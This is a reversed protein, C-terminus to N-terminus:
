QKVLKLVKNQAGGSITLLYTGHQLGESPINFHFRDGDPVLTKNLVVKGDMDVLRIVLQKEQTTGDLTWGNYTPNPYVVSGSEATLEDMGTTAPNVIFQGMMGNDEHSNIHCHYMYPMMPDSFDAYKMVLQATGGMPPVTVVDKRGQMYAPPAAGNISLIYFHNGHIHWPHPMMSQNTLSWIMVSDQKTYFNIVNMDYQVGNITFNTMSSM